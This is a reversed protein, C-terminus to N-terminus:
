KLEQIEKKLEENEKKLELMMNYLQQIYLEHEEINKTIGEMTNTVDLGNETIQNATMIGPLHKNEKVFQIREELTMLNYNEDFVYDCWDDQTITFTPTGCSNLELKMPYKVSATIDTGNSTMWYWGSSTVGYGLYKGCDAEDTTIWAHALPTKIAIHWNANTWQTNTNNILINGNLIDLKAQPDGTGIGVNGNDKLFLFYNGFGNSLWPKWFNLGGATKEYEIAWQGYLTQTTPSSQGFFISNTGMIAIHGNVQLKTRPYHTGMGIYGGETLTMVNYNNIGDDTKVHFNLYKETGSAALDWYVDRSPFNPGHGIVNDEIRLITTGTSTESGDDIETSGTPGSPGYPGISEMIGTAGTAGTPGIVGINTNGKIHLKIGNDVSPITGIGVRGDDTLTMVGGDYDPTLFELKDKSVQLDWITSAFGVPAQYGYEIRLTTAQPQPDGSIPNFGSYVHLKELPIGTGIGVNGGIITNHSGLIYADSCQILLDNNGSGNFDDTYINNTTNTNNIGDIIISNGIKLKNQVHLSDFDTLGSLGGIVRLAGGITINGSISANGEVTLKETPNTTGIGVKGDNNANIITSQTSDASTNSQIYLASDSKSQLVGTQVATTASVTKAAVNEAEFKAAVILSDFKASKSILTDTSVRDSIIVGGAVVTGTVYTNGIIKANGAVTLKETPSTTGIGVNAANNANIITSQTSDTSAKSQIYLANGFKSAIEANNTASASIRLYDGLDFAKTALMTDSSISNAVTLRKVVELSDFIASRSILTDTSVKSSIVLGSTAITGTVIADGIIRANGAVTLKETPNTTGIGVKGENNANIITSSASDATATSQIYLAAQVTNSARANVSDTQLNGTKLTDTTVNQSTVRKGIIVGNYVYLTGRINANGNVDLLEIATDIGIGVNGGIHITPSNLLYDSFINNVAATDTKSANVVASIIKSASWLDTTSNGAANISRHIEPKYIHAITLSDNYAGAAIELIIKGASWLDTTASGADNISRHIVPNDLHNKIDSVNTSVTGNGLTGTITVNGANVQGVFSSIGNVNLSGVSANNNVQLADASVKQIAYLNMATISSDAIVNGTAHVRGNVDFKYVPNIVGLGLNGAATLCMKQTGATIFNIPEPNLSGFLDGFTLNNGGSSYKQGSQANAVVAILIFFCALFIAKVSTSFTNM